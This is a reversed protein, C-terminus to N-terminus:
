RWEKVQIRYMLGNMVTQKDYGSMPIVTYTPQNRGPRFSLFRPFRPFKKRPNKFGLKWNQGVALILFESILFSPIICGLNGLNGLNGLKEFFFKKWYELTNLIKGHRLSTYRNHSTDISFRRDKKFFKKFLWKCWQSFFM